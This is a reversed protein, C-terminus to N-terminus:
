EGDEGSGRPVTIGTTELIRMRGREAEQWTPEVFIDRKVRRVVSNCARCLGIEGHLNNRQPQETEPLIDDCAECRGGQRPTHGGGDPIDEVNKWRKPKHM